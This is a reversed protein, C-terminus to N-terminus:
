EQRLNQQVAIHVPMAPFEVDKQIAAIIRGSLEPRGFTQEVLLKQGKEESLVRWLSEGEFPALEM